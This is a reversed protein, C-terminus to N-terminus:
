TSSKREHWAFNRAWLLSRMTAHNARARDNQFFHAGVAGRALARKMM